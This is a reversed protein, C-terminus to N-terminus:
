GRQIFWKYFGKIIILRDNGEQVIMNSRIRHLTRHILLNEGVVDWVDKIPNLDSSRPPYPLVTVNTEDLSNMTKERALHSIPWQSTSIYNIYRTAAM